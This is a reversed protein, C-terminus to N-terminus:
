EGGSVERVWGCHGPRGQCASGRLFLFDASLPISGHTLSSICLMVGGFQLTADSHFCTPPSKRGDLLRYFFRRVQYWFSLACLLPLAFVGRFM